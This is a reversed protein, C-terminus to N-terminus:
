QVSENTVINITEIEGKVLSVRFELDSNEPQSEGPEIIPLQPEAGGPVSDSRSLVSDEVGQSMWAVCHPLEPRTIHSLRSLLM